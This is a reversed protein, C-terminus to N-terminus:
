SSCYFSYPISAEDTCYPSIKTVSTVTAQGCFYNGAAVFNASFVLNTFRWLDWGFKVEHETSKIKPRKTSRREESWTEEEEEEEEEDNGVGRKERREREKRGRRGFM